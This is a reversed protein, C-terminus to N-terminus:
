RSLPELRQVLWERGGLEAFDVARLGRQNRRKPDAGRALLVTVSSEPGYRAAMMLPTTGNPAEAELLAGSALLLEVVKTSPGSAAYHIPSWGEHQTRAGRGLLQSCTDLDGAIAALMLATEGTANMANLDIAPHSLLAAFSKPSERQVALSLAPMGKPDRSNPDMGEILLAQVRRSDDRIVASFFDKYSGALTASSGSLVILYLVFKFHVRMTASAAIVSINLVM